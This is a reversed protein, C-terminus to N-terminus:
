RTLCTSEAAWVERVLYPCSGNVRQNTPQSAPRNTPEEKSYKIYNNHDTKERKYHKKCHIDSMNSFVLKYVYM